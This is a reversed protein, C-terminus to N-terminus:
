GSVKARIAAMTGRVVCRWPQHHSGGGAIREIPESEKAHPHQRVQIRSPVVCQNMTTQTEGPAKSVSAKETVASELTLASGNAHFDALIKTLYFGWFCAM